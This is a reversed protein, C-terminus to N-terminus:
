TRDICPLRTRTLNVMFEDTLMGAWDSAEEITVCDGGDPGILVAEDGVAAEPIETVDVMLQDMCVRGTVRARKGHILVEGRNSLARPYGDAYGAAVTAIRMSRQATFTQGYSIGTGPPIERILIIRAHLELVQRLRVPCAVESSPVVGYASIGLRVMDLSCEPYFIAGASNSIHRLLVSVGEEELWGLFRQMREWQRLTFRRDAADACAFHSFVGELCIGPLNSIAAALRANERTCAFGLRTMGTNVSIHVMAKRGLRVAADSVARAEEFRDVNFRLGALICEEYNEPWIHGLVLQPVTVGASLLELAEQECSVAILDLRSGLYRAAAVAGAGYANAKLCLCTRTGEPLREMIRDINEKLAPLNVVLWARNNLINM